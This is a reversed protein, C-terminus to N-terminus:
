VSALSGVEKWNIDRFDVTLVDESASLCREVVAHVSNDQRNLVQGLSIKTSPLTDNTYRKRNRLYIGEVWPVVGAVSEVDGHCLTSSQELQRYLQSLYSQYLQTMHFITWYNKHSACSAGDSEPDCEDHRRYQTGHVKQPAWRFNL